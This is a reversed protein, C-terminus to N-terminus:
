AVSCPVRLHAHGCRRDNIEQLLAVNEVLERRGL